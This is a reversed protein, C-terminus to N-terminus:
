RWYRGSDLSHDESRVLGNGYRADVSGEVGLGLGFLDIFHQRM